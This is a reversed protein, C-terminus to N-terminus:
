SQVFIAYAQNEFEKVLQRTQKVLDDQVTVWIVTHEQGSDKRAKANIGHQKLHAKITTALSM